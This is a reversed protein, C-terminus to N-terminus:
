RKRAEIMADALRYACRTIATFETDFVVRTSAALLGELAALAFNDRINERAECRLANQTESAAEATMELRILGPFGNLSDSPVAFRPDSRACSNKPHSLAKAGVRPGFPYDALQLFLGCLECSYSISM